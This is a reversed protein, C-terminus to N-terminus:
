DSLQSHLDPSLLSYQLAKSMTEWLTRIALSSLCPHTFSHSPSPFVLQVMPTLPHHSGTCIWSSADRLSWYQLLYQKIGKNIIQISPDLASLVRYWVPSAASVSSASLAAIWLSRVLQLFPSVVVKYLEVFAFHSTRCRCGFLGMCCHMSPASQSPLLEELSDLPGLLCCISCPDPTCGWLRSPWGWSM